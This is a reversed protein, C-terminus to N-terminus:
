VTMGQLCETWCSNRHDSFLAFATFGTLTIVWINRICLYICMYNYIAIYPFLQKPAYSTAEGLCLVGQCIQMMNLAATNISFCTKQRFITSHLLWLKIRILFDYCRLLDEKLSFYRELLTRFLKWAADHSYTGLNTQWQWRDYWFFSQYALGRLDKKRYSM